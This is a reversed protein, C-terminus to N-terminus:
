LGVASPGLRPRASLGPRLGVKADAMVLDVGAAGDGKAVVAPQMVDAEASGVLPPRDLEEDDIALNPDEGGVGALQDALEDEIGIAVVLRDSPTSSDVIDRSM